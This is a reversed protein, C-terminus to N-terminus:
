QRAAAVQVRACRPATQGSVRNGDARFARAAEARRACGSVGGAGRCARPGAVDGRRRDGRAVHRVGGRGGRASCLIRRRRPRDGPRQGAGVGRVGAPGLKEVALTGLRKALADAISTLLRQTEAASAGREFFRVAVRAADRYAGELEDQSARAVDAALYIPDAQLQRMIDTATVVGVIQGQGAVPLHHIGLESMTLMAEFVLANPAITRVPSTMVDAVPRSTDVGAAVVRSRMDADTIIGAIDQGDTIILSSIGEEGMTRAAEAISVHKDRTVPGRGAFIERLPTRLVDTAGVDRVEEAAARVRRSATQFFRGMDPFQELLELFAERPLMLLISDEVAQMLYASEREGVLTSYGFNLGAERRDLLLNDASVIDVAGSRIVYLTDNPQGVEVVAQGRRVYTIGMQVPLARLIDEPLTSFPEHQALCGYVEDLEVSM